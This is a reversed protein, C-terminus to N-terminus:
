GIWDLGLKLYARISKRIEAVLGVRLAAKVKLTDLRNEKIEKVLLTKIRGQLRSTIEAEDTLLTNIRSM